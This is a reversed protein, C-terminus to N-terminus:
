KHNIAHLSCSNLWSVDKERMFLLPSIGYIIKIPGILV